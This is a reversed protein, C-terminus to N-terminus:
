GADVEEDELVGEDTLHQIFGDNFDAYQLLGFFVANGARRTVRNVNGM